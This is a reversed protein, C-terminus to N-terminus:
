ALLSYRSVSEKLATTDLASDHAENFGLETAGPLYVGTRGSTMNFDYREFIREFLPLKKENVTLHPAPDELWELLNDFLRVGIGRGFFEPSVRVTCIKNELSERKAIGIAVLQDDREVCKVLRTGERLGTIVKEAYWTELGPYDTSLPLLFELVRKDRNSMREAQATTLMGFGKKIM